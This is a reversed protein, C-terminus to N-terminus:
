IPIGSECLMTLVTKCISIGAAEPAYKGPLGGALITQIGHARARDFNVGYPASALELILADRRM